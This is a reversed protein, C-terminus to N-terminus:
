VPMVAQLSALQYILCGALAACLAPGFPFQKAGTLRQWLLGYGLGVIGAAAFFYPILMFPLWFGAATFFKVDGLGLMERGRWKSYGLALFLSFALLGSAIVFGLFLDGGGLLLWFFGLVGLLLNLGDPIIGFMLDIVTIAPLLGLAVCLVFTSPSVGSLAIATAGLIFGIIEAVPQPWQGRRQGCPCSLTIAGRRMAWGIVPLYEYWRLARQCYLCEPWRSEGPMRDASRIGFHTALAATIMAVLGGLFIELIQLIEPNM